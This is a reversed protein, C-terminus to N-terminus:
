GVTYHISTNGTVYRYQIYIDRDMLGIYGQQTPLNRHDARAQGGTLV